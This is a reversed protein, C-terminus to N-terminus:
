GGFERRKCVSGAFVARRRVSGGFERRRVVSGPFEVRNIAAPAAAVGFRRFLKVISGVWGGM